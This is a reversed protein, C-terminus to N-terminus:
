IAAIKNKVVVFLGNNKFIDINAVNYCFCVKILGGMICFIIAARNTTINAKLM